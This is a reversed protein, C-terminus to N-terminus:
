YRGHDDAMRVIRPRFEALVRVLDQQADMVAHIPKYAQPAEDRGGGLLEVHQRELYAMMEQKSITREADKRGKQRGAGHSASDLSAAVGRGEVLFGPDAMSGPIIGRVGPGAPTAGKRHVFVERGDHEERWCNHVVVGACVFSHSPHAVTLDYVPEADTQRTSVVRQAFTGEPLALYGLHAPALGRGAAHRRTHRLHSAKKHHWLDLAAAADAGLCFRYTTAPGFNTTTHQVSVNTVALGCGIALERLQAILPGNVSALAARGANKRNASVHGDGDVYGALFALKAARSAGFVSAPIRLARCKEAVGMARVAAHVQKSSCTLGYAGPANNKWSAAGPFVDNLLGEYRHTHPEDAGGIALGVGYGQRFTKERVWGDAVFAGMLRAEAPLLAGTCAHYGEACVILDGPRVERAPKWCYYGERKQMWPRDPHVGSTVTITLLPHDGSCRLRRARTTIEYIPRTGSCWHALVPTPVLGRTEDFAYVEDGAALAEMRVPGAPTPVLADGPICFNHHNEVQLAPKLGAAHAVHKHILHHNASAYDGALNMATWYELGAEEDLGLWALARLEPPLGARLRQALATYHNAITFGVARSGSHSLLALYPEGAKLEDSLDEMPTLLGWEVFHNGGGSSGLQAVAKDHLPRLLAPGERWRRDELVPHSRRLGGSGTGFATERQIAGVLDQRYRALHAEGVPFVSLKMRCAIDVGVAYPIVAGETALVGGIPLGYGVHADPMLAGAVSVPLRMANDMQQRAADDVLDPGWAAYPRPQELARIVAQREAEQRRQLVVEARVRELLAFAEPSVEGADNALPKDPDLARGLWSPADSGSAEVADAAQIAPGFLPGPRVGLRKVLKSPKV